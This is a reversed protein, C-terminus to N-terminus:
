LVALRSGRLDVVVVVASSNALCPEYDYWHEMGLKKLGKFTLGKNVRVAGGGGFFILDPQAARRRLHPRTRVPYRKMERACCFM